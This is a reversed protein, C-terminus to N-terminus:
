IATWMRFMAALILEQSRASLDAGIGSQAMNGNGVFYGYTSGALM